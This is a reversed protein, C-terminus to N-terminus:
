LDVVTETCNTNVTETAAAAPLKRKRGRKKPGPPLGLFGPDLKTLCEVSRVYMDRAAQIQAEQMKAVARSLKKESAHAVVDTAHLLSQLSRVAITPDADIAEQLTPLAELQRQTPTPVSTCSDLHMSTFTSVYWVNPAPKRQYLQVRFSCGDSTCLVLKHGGGSRAVKVSKKQALAYDQVYQLAARGDPFELDKRLPEM